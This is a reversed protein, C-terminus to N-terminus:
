KTIKDIILGQILNEIEIKTNALQINDIMKNIIMNIELSNM